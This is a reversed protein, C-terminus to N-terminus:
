PRERYPARAFPTRAFTIRRMAFRWATPCPSSRGRARATSRTTPERSYVPMAPRLSSPEAVRLHPIAHKSAFFGGKLNTDLCANWEAESVDPLQKDMNIGANSVLIHLGGGREAALDILAKVDKETRVDCTTQVIGLETFQPDNEPRLQVDGIFVRAGHRALLIATARGIGSAGGTVVAVRGSLDSKKVNSV